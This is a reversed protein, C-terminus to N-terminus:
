SSVTAGFQHHCSPCARDSENTDAGCWPCPLETASRYAEDWTGAEFAFGDGADQFRRGAFVVLATILSATLLLQVM